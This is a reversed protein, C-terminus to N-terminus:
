RASAAWTHDSINSGQRRTAKSEETKSLEPTRTRLVLVSSGEQGRSEEEGGAGAGAGAGSRAVFLRFWALGCYQVTGTRPCASPWGSIIAALGSWRRRTCGFLRMSPHLTTTSLIEERSQADSSFLGGSKIACCFWRLECRCASAREGGCAGGGDRGAAMGDDMKMEMAMATARGRQM